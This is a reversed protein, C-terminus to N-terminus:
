KESAWAAGVKVYPLIRDLVVAGVRGSVTALWNVNSQCTLFIGPLTNACSNTGRIGTGDFDGQLGWVVWGTQYNYGLQGGGLFGNTNLQGIPLNFPVFGPIQNLTVNNQGWGAGVNAGIYWGTWSYPAVPMMPPAKVALDAASALPATSLLGAAFAAAVFITRSLKKSM